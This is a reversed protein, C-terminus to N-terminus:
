PPSCQASVQLNELAQKMLAWQIGLENSWIDELEFAWPQQGSLRGQLNPLDHLLLGQIENLIGALRALGPGYELTLDHAARAHRLIDDNVTDPYDQFASSRIREAAAVFDQIAVITDFLLSGTGSQLGYPDVLNVPDNLVYGYLNTTGGRFRIPDKATWRGITSDFDRKGFRVLTSDSDYIGGAFGFPQFHENTDMLVNGFEDYDM